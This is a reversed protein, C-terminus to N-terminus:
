KLYAVMDDLTTVDWTAKPEEGRCLHFATFGMVRAGDAEVDYDDVYLSREASVGLADLATQYMRPDPKFAGVQDSCVYCSFYKSLGAAEITLPLSPFTDSIVGMRFGREAFWDLVPVVEPYVAIGKLWYADFLEGARAEVQEMIGQNRLLATFYEKWFAIENEVTLLRREGLVHDFLRNPADLPKDSWREIMARRANRAAPDNHLLTGDRDFFAADYAKISNRKSFM